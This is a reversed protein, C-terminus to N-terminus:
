TMKPDPLWEGMDNNFKHMFGASEKTHRNKYKSANINIVISM